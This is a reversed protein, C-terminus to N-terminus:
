LTVYNYSTTDGTEPSCRVGADDTHDCDHRGLGRHPCDILRSENGTCDLDDLVIQGTGDVVTELTLVVAGILSFYNPSNIM